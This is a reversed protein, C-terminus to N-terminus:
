ARQGRLRAPDPGRDPQRVAPHVQGHAGILSLATIGALLNMASYAASARGVDAPAYHRAALLWYALGLLGTFGTNAMLAYANRM